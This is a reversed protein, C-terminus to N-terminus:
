CVSKLRIELLCKQTKCQYKQPGGREGLWEEWIEERGVFIVGDEYGKKM